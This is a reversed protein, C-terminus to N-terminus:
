PKSGLDANETHTELKQKKTNRSQNKLGSLKDSCGAVINKRERPAITETGSRRGFYIWGGTGMDSALAAKKRVLVVVKQSDFFEFKAFISYICFVM